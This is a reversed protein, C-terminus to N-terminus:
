HIIRCFIHTVVLYIYSPKVYFTQTTPAARFAVTPNTSALPRGADLDRRKVFPGRKLNDQTHYPPRTDNHARDRSVQPRTHGVPTSIDNEGTVAEAEHLM